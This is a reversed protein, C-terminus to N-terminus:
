AYAGNRIRPSHDWAVVKSFNVGMSSLTTETLSELNRAAPAPGPFVISITPLNNENHEYATVRLYAIDESALFETAAAVM